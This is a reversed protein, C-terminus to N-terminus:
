PHSDPLEILASDGRRGIARYLRIAIPATQDHVGFRNVAGFWLGRVLSPRYLTGEFLVPVSGYPHDKFRRNLESIFDQRDLQESFGAARKPCSDSVLVEGHPQISTILASTIFRRSGVLEPNRILFCLDVCVPSEVGSETSRVRLSGIGFGLFFACFVLIISYKMGDMDFRSGM